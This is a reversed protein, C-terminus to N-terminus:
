SDNSVNELEDYEFDSGVFDWYRTKKDFDGM